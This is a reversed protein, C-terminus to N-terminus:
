IYNCKLQLISNLFKTNLFIIPRLISVSSFMESFKVSHSKLQIHPTQSFIFNYLVKQIFIQLSYTTLSYLIINYSVKFIDAATHWSSEDTETCLSESLVVTGALTISETQTESIAVCINEMIQFIRSIM